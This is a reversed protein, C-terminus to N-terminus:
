TEEEGEGGATEETGRPIAMEDVTKVIRFERVTVGFRKALRRIELYLAEISHRDMGGTIEFRRVVEGTDDKDM